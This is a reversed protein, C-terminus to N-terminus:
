FAYRLMSRVNFLADNDSSTSPPRTVSLPSYYLEGALTLAETLPWSAGGNVSWTWGDALLLTRDVFGYTVADVQFEMDHYTASV